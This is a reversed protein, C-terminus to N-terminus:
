PMGVKVRFFRSAANTPSWDGGLTEKGKVTYVRAEGLDPTWTVVPSGDAGIWIHTEFRDSWNTPNLGAVYCQWVANVGNAATARAAAEYGAESGDGLMYSDLWAYPVPVPTTVTHDGGNKVLPDTFTAYVEDYDTVGDGDTDAKTPDTGLMDEEADLLGDGDTDLATMVRIPQARTSDALPDGTDVVAWVTEWASTFSIGAMNWSIGADYGNGEGALVAGLDDAGIEPGDPEGRRFSVVTGERAPGLGYNRM